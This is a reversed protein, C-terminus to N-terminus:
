TTSKMVYDKGYMYWLGTCIAVGIAGGVILGPANGIIYGLGMFLLILIVYFGMVTKFATNM